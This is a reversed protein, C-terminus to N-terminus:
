YIRTIQTYIINLLEDYSVNLEQNFLISMIINGITESIEKWRPSTDTDGFRQKMIEIPHHKNLLKRLKETFHYIIYPPDNLIQNHDLQEQSYYNLGLLKDIYTTINGEDDIKFISSRLIIQSSSDPPYGFYVVNLPHITRNEITTDYSKYVVRKPIDTYTFIHAIDIIIYSDLNYNAILEFILEGTTFMSSVVRTDVRTDHSSFLKHLEDEIIKRGEGTEGFLIDSHVIRIIYNPLILKLVNDLIGDPKLWYFALSDPNLDEFSTSGQTYKYGIGTTYITFEKRDDLIRNISGAKLNLYKNKYKLYKKKYNM